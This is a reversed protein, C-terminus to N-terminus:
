LQIYQLSGISLKLIELALWIRVPPTSTGIFRKTCSQMIEMALVSSISCDQVLGNLYDDIGGIISVSDCHCGM